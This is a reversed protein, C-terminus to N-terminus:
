RRWPSEPVTAGDGRPDSAAFNVPTSSDHMVAQGTGGHILDYAGMLDIKHGMGELAQRTEAPVRTEMAVECGELKRGNARAEVFRPAELAGQLNMGHDVMNSIFQAHSLPQVPGGMIGFGIRKGDKEAFGPLISHFPRKRPSLANAHRPALAIGRASRNAPATARSRFTRTSFTNM